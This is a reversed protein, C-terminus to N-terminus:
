AQVIQFKETMLTKLKDIHGGVNNLFRFVNARFTKYEKYYKGAVLESKMFGWFREILNLNPAYPPLFVLKISPNDSLWDTVKRAHFYRANDVILSINSCCPFYKTKVIDLLDIVRDANCNEEGTLHTVSYMDPDYAGLINLRKRGSNTELLPQYAPNGWCYGPVTQHNFHMADGFLVKSDPENKLMEYQSIFDKQTQVSPTSGPVTKQRIFCLGRKKLLLRVAEESYDIDFKQKIYEVVVKVNKPNEFTVFIEVQNIQLDKLYSKKPKYHYENLYEIGKNKFTRFWNDITRASCGFTSAVTEISNNGDALAIM